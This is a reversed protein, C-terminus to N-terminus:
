HAVQFFILKCSIYEGGVFPGGQAEEGFVKIPERALLDMSGGNAAFEDNLIVDGNQDATVAELVEVVPVRLRAEDLGAEALLRYERRTVGVTILMHELVGGQAAAHRKEDVM